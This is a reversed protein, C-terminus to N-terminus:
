RGLIISNPRRELARSLSSVAEAARQIERMANRVDRNLQSNNDFGALTTTTQNVLTNLRAVLAPLDTTALAIADAASAASALTKNTNEITGGDRLDALVSQVQALAGSLNAPLDKAGDSALLANATETIGTLEAILEDVPLANAKEAVASLQAVLDPVGKFSNGAENAATGAADIATLLRAVGDQTTIEAIVKQLDTMAATLTVPLAQTADAALLSRAADVLDTAQTLLDELPLDNAKGALAEIEAILTPVGDLATGVQTAATGAADVAALLRNVTDAQEIQSLVGRLDGVTGQLSIMLANLSEPLQQVEDSGIVGRADALLGIAEAPLSQVENSGVLASANDLFTIVSGMLEEIPLDNVRKLVGQATAAVDQVNNATSPIIPLGESPRELVAPAAGAVRLFEVKLGGTLISATALRARLGDAVRETLFALATEPTTGDELGLREPRIGISALLRVRADGFREEDVLGRLSSVEGIKVGGFEVPSGATLGSVNDDFVVALDLTPGSADSFVSARATAEDAYADFQTGDAVPQGGSVITEFTVGGSILSALSSFDIEAGGAGIRFSFGSTDWFRTASSILQDHPAYIIADAVAETGDGILRPKGTRGVRIGKFLIPTGESLAATGQARLIIRLGSEGIGLLPADTLGVHTEVLGDPTTDWLGGIFVGSLVTDLGTVGQTTVEPRVVWFQADGDVYPAIDKDLRVTVDVKELSPSFGISQVIGVDVDRYRVVTEGAKVGSASDFTIVILPGRDSYSQWAVGLAILLAAIPILWVVSFRESISRRIPKIPVDPPMTM